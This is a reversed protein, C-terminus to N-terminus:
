YVQRIKYAQDVWPDSSLSGHRVEKRACKVLPLHPRAQWIYANQDSCGAVIHTGDGSFDARVYFSNACHGGFVAVPPLEPRLVDFLSHSGGKVTVLLRPGAHLLRTWTLRKDKVQM